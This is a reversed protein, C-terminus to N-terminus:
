RLRQKGRQADKATKETHHPACISQLNDWEYRLWPAEAVPIIHDVEDAPHKCGPRECWPDHALKAGRLERWRRTSPPSKSGLWAPRCPCRGGGYVLQRCRGCIRPAANPM